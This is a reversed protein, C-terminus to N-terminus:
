RRGKGAVKVRFTVCGGLPESVLASCADDGGTCWTREWLKGRQRREGRAVRPQERAKELPSRVSRGAEASVENRSMIQTRFAPSERVTDRAMKLGPVQWAPGWERLCRLQIGSSAGGTPLGQSVPEGGQLLLPLRAM